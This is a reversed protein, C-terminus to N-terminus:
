DLHALTGGAVITFFAPALYISVPVVAATGFVLFALLGARLVRTRPRAPPGGRGVHQWATALLALLAALGLFGAGLLTDLYVSDTTTFAYATWTRPIAGPFNGFGVGFPNEFAARVAISQAELRSRVNEEEVGRRWLLDLRERFTTSSAVAGVGAAIAASVLAIRAGRKLASAPVLFLLAAIAGATGSRSGSEALCLGAAALSLGLLTWTAASRRRPLFAAHLVALAVAAYALDNPNTLLGSARDALATADFEDPRPLAEQLGPQLVFLVLAGLTPVTLLRVSRGMGPAPFRAAALPIIAALGFRKMFLLAEILGRGNRALEAGIGALVAISVALLALLPTDVEVGGAGRVLLDLLTVAWLSILLVDIGAVNGLGPLSTVPFWVLSAPVAGLLLLRAASPLLGRRGAAALPADLPAPVAIAEPPM